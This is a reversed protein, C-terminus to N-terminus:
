YLEVFCDASTLATTHAKGNAIGSGPDLGGALNTAAAAAVLGTGNSGTGNSATVLANAAASAAIAAIVLTVTSTIVSSGDTALNVTIDNGAVTVSLAQSAAAPDVHRVSIGNGAAGADKATYKIKSNGTGLELTAAVAAVGALPIAKGAADSQVEDGATIGAGATVPVINGKKILPVVNGSTADYAFVGDARQGLGCTAYRFNGGDYTSPLTVTTITPGSQIDGSVRGFTKGVVDATVRVTLDKDGGKFLPVCTNNPM